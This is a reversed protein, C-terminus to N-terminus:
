PAPTYTWQGSSQLSGSFTIADNYAGTEDVNTLFFSGSITDGNPYEVTIDELLYDDGGTLVVSRLVADKTIGDFSIDLSRNGPCALLTRFGNDDDSTIDIPEGAASITKTRIGALTASGKKILLDRGKNAAM